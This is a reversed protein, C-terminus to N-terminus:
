RDMIRKIETCDGPIKWPLLLPEDEVLKEFIKEFCKTCQETFEPEEVHSIEDPSLYVGIGTNKNALIVKTTTSIKKEQPNHALITYGQIREFHIATELFFISQDYNKLVEFRYLVPKIWWFYFM